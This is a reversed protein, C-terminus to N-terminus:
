FKTFTGSFFLRIKFWVFVRSLSVAIQNSENNSLRNEGNSLAESKVSLRFDKDFEEGSSHSKHKNEPSNTVKSNNDSSDTQTQKQSLQKRDASMESILSHVASSKAIIQERLSRCKLSISQMQQEIGILELVDKDMETVLVKLKVFPDSSDILLQDRLSLRRGLQSLWLSSEGISGDINQLQECAQSNLQRVTQRLTSDTAISDM